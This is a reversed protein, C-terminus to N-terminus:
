VCWGDSTSNSAMMAVAVWFWSRWFGPRGSCVGRPCMPNITAPEIAAPSMAAKTRTAAGNMGAVSFTRMPTTSRANARPQTNSATSDTRSVSWGCRQAAAGATTMATAPSM